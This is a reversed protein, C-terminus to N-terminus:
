KFKEVDIRWVEELRETYPSNIITAYCVPRLIYSHVFLGNGIYIGTHCIVKAYKFLIVDGPQMDKNEIKHAYKSIYDVIYNHKYRFGHLNWDMPYTPMVFDKLYGLEQMIGVLLGSCDCGMRTHGRHRYPVKANAWEKALKVIQERLNEM